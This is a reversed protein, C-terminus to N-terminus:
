SCEVVYHAIQDRDAVALDTFRVGNGIPRNPMGELFRDRKHVVEARQAKRREFAGAM